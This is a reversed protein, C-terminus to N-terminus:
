QLRPNKAIPKKSPSTEGEAVIFAFNESQTVNGGVGEALARGRLAGRKKPFSSRELFQATVDNNCLLDVVQGYLGM